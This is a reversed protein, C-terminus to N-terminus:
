KVNAVKKAVGINKVGTPNTVTFNIAATANPNDESAINVTAHAPEVANLAPARQVTEWTGSKVATVLGDADVTVVNEDTSEFVLNKNTANEPTFLVVIQYTDGGLDLTVETEEVAISEVDIINDKSVKLAKKAPTINTNDDTPISFIGMNGGWLVLNGAYDFAMQTVWGGSARRVNSPVGNYSYKYVLTPVDGNWTIDFFQLVNSGDNIVLVKEDNSIAFGAGNSGNLYDNVFDVDAGSNYKIEGDANMYMLSPVGRTNNGASRVQSVWYGGNSMAVVNGNTNIQYAGIADTQNPAQNWYNAITGDPNGLNYISVNNGVGNVFIDENYVYLKTDAGSGAVCVGPTSGGVAVGDANSILGDGNRSLASGDENVFLQKFGESENAPNFVFVGSTPDGWDPMYVKGEADIGLRYNSRFVSNDSRKNIVTTNYPTWDPNVIYMGNNASATAPRHGIYLRGFFDSEPSKDVTGFTYDYNFDTPNNILAISPISKGTLMIAWNMQGDGPLDAFAVDFSNAGEKVNPIDIAGLEAGTKADTFIIAASEADSNATFNFTYASEGRTSNLGYAYIGKVTPQDAGETTFKVINNEAILYANINEKHVVAGSFGFGATNATIEQLAPAGAAPEVINTETKILKANALGDTVDYFKLGKINNKEGYPAVMVVHQAYKFFQVGNGLIEPDANFINYASAAPTVGDAPMELEYLKSSNSGSFIFAKDNFPSVSVKIHGYTSTDYDDINGEVAAPDGFEAFQLTTNSTARSQSVVNGDQVTFFAPRIGRAGKSSTPGPICVICEKIPGSVAVGWGYDSRYWNSTYQTSWWDTPASDFDEWYYAHMTGRQYGANVYSNDYQNRVATVGVLKKDASLTISGIKNFFGPNDPMTFMGETNLEKVMQKTNNDILYIHADTGVHTLVITSDGYQVTQAIDGVLDGYTNGEDMNFVFESAMQLYAPQVPDPYNEYVEEVPVYNVNELFILPWTTENATVTIPGKYEDFLPKYGDCTAELTYQGPELDSFFFIGNYNQDVNYTAIVNGDKLLNVVAGNLPLWQDNTGYSYKYLPNNIKEHLDRISGMIEGKGKMPFEFYAAVGRSVRIGELFDYDPNLARHRAPQYTHFYGELLFGPVGHRLAGLYGYYTNGNFTNSYYTGYFNIDGRVNTSNQYYNQPEFDLDFHHYPWNTLAMQYSGPNGEGTFGAGSSGGNQGPDYGRYLYLPYNTTTGETAANSHISIFMDFNGNEAEECIDVLPKNYIEKDPSDPDYPYPGNLWRSMVLNESKLGMDKLEEWLRICKWLNTNSEYFGCTDPRGTEATMPYPITAMPRDNPGWSGHGPNIYVRLEDTTKAQLAFAAMIAAAAFLLIKKM